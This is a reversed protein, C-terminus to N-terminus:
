NKRRFIVYNIIIILDLILLLLILFYRLSSPSSEVLEDANVSAYYTVGNLTYSILLTDSQESDDQAAYAIIDYETGAKFTFVVNTDSTATIDRESLLKKYYIISPPQTGGEFNRIFSKPVYGYQVNGESVAYSIFYYDYDVLDNGLTFEKLVYVVANKDLETIHLAQTLYPYKYLLVNNTLYGVGNEFDKPTSAYDNETLATCADKRVLGATYKRNSPNFVTVAYYQLGHIETESLVVANVEATRTYTQYPFVTSSQTLEELSFHLLLANEKLTVVPVIEDTDASEFIDQYSNGTELNNLNPLDVAQTSLIYNDYIFYVTGYEYGFAYDQLDANANFLCDSADVIYRSGDSCYLTNGSLGYVNGDFDVSLNQTATPFTYYLVGGGTSLFEEETYKYVTNDSYEVYVNGYIDGCMSLVTTSIDKAIETNVEFDTADIRYCSINRTILLYDGDKACAVGMLAGNFDAIPADIMPTGDFGYVHVTSTNAILISKGDSALYDPTFACRFVFYSQTLLNYLSIRNQDATILYNDSVISQTASLLRNSSSSSTAIEYDTFQKSKMDFRCIKASTDTQAAVYLFNGDACLATYELGESQYVTQVKGAKLDYSYLAQKDTYYLLDGNVTINYVDSSLAHLEKEEKRVNLYQGDTYYLIGDQYTMSPVTTVAASLTEIPQTPRNKDYINTTGTVSMAYYMTDDALTFASCSFGQALAVLDEKTCDLTHMYGNQDLFYLLFEETMELQVVKATHTYVRYQTGNYIYIINGDAVAVYNGRVALGDVTNMHLYQEYSGPLMLELENKTLTVPENQAAEANVARIAGASGLLVGSICIFSLLSLLFKKM